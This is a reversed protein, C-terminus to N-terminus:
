KFYSAPLKSRHPFSTQTGEAQVSVSAIHNAKKMCEKVDEGMAYFYAFSGLFCDGAGTTDVAKVKESPSHYVENETVLLSGNEGLTVLVKKVGKELLVKAAVKAEDINNVPKKSLIELETENPCLIDVVQFIDSPLDQAPAPNLITTVGAQKAVKLAEWTTELRIELQTLLVKCETIPKSAKHVEEKNLLDNTGSVIVISNAGDDSVTIPAVGSSAENSIYIYDTNVGHAEFNKKMDAGFSDTGLKCVMTIDAGLLGAMVAQNAGKGGCGTKFKYGRLTEGRKPLTPVYSILDM